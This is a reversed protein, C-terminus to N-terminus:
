NKKLMLAKQKGWFPNQSYAVKGTIRRLRKTHGSIFDKFPGFLSTLCSWAHESRKCEAQSCSTGKGLEAICLVFVGRTRKM